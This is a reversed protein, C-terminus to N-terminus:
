ELRRSPFSFRPGLSWFLVVERNCPATTRNEVASTKRALWRAGPSNWRSIAFETESQINGALNATDSPPPPLQTDSSQTYVTYCRKTLTTREFVSIAFPDAVLQNFLNLTPAVYLWKGPECALARVLRLGRCPAPIRGNACKLNSAPRAPTEGRWSDVNIVDRVMIVCLRTM